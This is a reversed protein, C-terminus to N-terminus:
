SASAVEGAHYSSRVLPGAVVQQFGLAVADGRLAMFEEPSYYRDVPLHWATPRLYQGVTLIDVGAARLDRFAALLEEYSEGLGVMLGSKTLVVPSLAKARSLLELSRGYGAKPRVRGYLREVTELNHNLIVPGAALVCQLAAAEGAFDPILVEITCSDVRRRIAEITAAFIAAGGDALDDRTVSTLVVHRLRMAAVAGAVRAPEDEDVVGPRGTAINCFGCARTCTDGLLLFTATGAEWCEARNPCRAEECVTHLAQDHILRRVGLYGSGGAL